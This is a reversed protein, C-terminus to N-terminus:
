RVHGWPGSYPLGLGRSLAGIPGGRSSSRAVIRGIPESGNLLQSIAGQPLRRVSELAAQENGGRDGVTAVEHQAQILRALQGSPINM